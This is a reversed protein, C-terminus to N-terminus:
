RSIGNGLQARPLFPVAICGVLTGAGCLGAARRASRRTVPAVQEALVSSRPVPRVAPETRARSSFRAGSRRMVLVRQPTRASM